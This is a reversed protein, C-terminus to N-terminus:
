EEQKYINYAWTCCIDIIIYIRLYTIQNEKKNILKFYKFPLIFYHGSIYAIIQM